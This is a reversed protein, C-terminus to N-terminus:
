SNAYLRAQRIPMGRPLLDPPGHRHGPLYKCECQGSVAHNESNLPALSQGTRCAAGREDPADGHGVAGDGDVGVEAREVVEIAEVVDPTGAMAVGDMASSTRTARDTAASDMRNKIGTTPALRTNSNTSGAHSSQERGARGSYRTSHRTTASGAHHRAVEGKPRQHRRRRM